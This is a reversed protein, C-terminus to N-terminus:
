AKVKKFNDDIMNKKFSRIYNVLATGGGWVTGAIGAVAVIIFWAFAILAIIAAIIAVVIAIVIIIGILGGICGAGSSSDDRRMKM